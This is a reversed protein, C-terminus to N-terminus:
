LFKIMTISSYRLQLAKYSYNFLKSVITWHWCLFRISVILGFSKRTTYKKVRESESVWFHSLVIRCKHDVRVFKFKQIKAFWFYKLNPFLAVVKKRGIRLCTAMQKARSQQRISVYFGRSECRKRGEQENRNSIDGGLIYHRAMAMARWQSKGIM